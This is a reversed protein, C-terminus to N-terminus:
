ANRGRNDIWGRTVLGLTANTSSLRIYIQSSADLLQKIEATISGSYAYYDNYTNSAATNTRASNGHWLYLISGTTLHSCLSIIATMNPPATITYANRDTNGVAAIGDGDLRNFIPNTFSVIDGSQTFPYINAAADTCVTMIRRKYTYGAPMTPATASLSFLADISGDSDKRILWIYYFTDAAVTGTDIGGAGTGAAWAADIQKTIASGLSPAHAATSDIAQGAAITIDHDADAANSCTLGDIHGRSVLGAYAPIAGDKILLGDITVGAGSTREGITDTTPTEAWTDLELVKAEANNLNIASIAPPGGNAYTTRTYDGIAM